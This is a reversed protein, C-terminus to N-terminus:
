TQGGPWPGFWSRGAVRTFPPNRKSVSMLSASIKSTYLVVLLSFHGIWLAYRGAERFFSWSGLFCFLFLAFLFLFVRYGWLKM